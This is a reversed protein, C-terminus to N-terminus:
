NEGGKKIVPKEEGRMLRGSNARHRLIVLLAVVVAFVLRVLAPGHEPVFVHQLIAISPLVAAALLSGLSVIRTAGFVALFALLAALSALPLLCLCVGASTAVGKGGRFKLYVPWNHGAIAALGCAVPWEGGALWAGLAVALAGKGMDLALTCVGVKAGLVRFANTAGLNGSGHARLDVGMARGLLYSFPLAGLLYALIIALTYQM